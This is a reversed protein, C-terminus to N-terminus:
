IPLYPELVIRDIPLTGDLYPTAYNQNVVFITNGRQLITDKARETVTARNIQQRWRPCPGDM